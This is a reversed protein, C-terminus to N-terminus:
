AFHEFAVQAANGEAEQLSRFLDLADFTTGNVIVTARFQPNHELGESSSTNFVSLLFAPSFSFLTLSGLHIYAQENESYPFM